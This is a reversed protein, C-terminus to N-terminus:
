GSWNADTADILLTPLPVIGLYVCGSQESSHRYPPATQDLRHRGVHRLTIEFAARPTTGILPKVGAVVPNFM